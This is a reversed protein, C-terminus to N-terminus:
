SKEPAWRACVNRQIIPAGAFQWHEVTTGTRELCRWNALTRVSIRGRFRDSLEGPTLYVDNDNAAEM